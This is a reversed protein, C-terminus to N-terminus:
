YSPYEKIIFLNKVIFSNKKKFLNNYICVILEIEFKKLNNQNPISLNEEDRFLDVEFEDEINEINSGKRFSVESLQNRKKIFLYNYKIKLLYFIFILFLKGFKKVDM